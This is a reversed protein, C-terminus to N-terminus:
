NTPPMVEIAGQGELCACINRRVQNIYHNHVDVPRSYNVPTNTVNVGTQFRGTENAIVCAFDNEGCFSFVKHQDIESDVLDNKSGPSNFSYVHRLNEIYRINDNTVISQVATGGLSSGILDFSPSDLDSDDHKVRNQVLLTTVIKTAMDFACSEQNYSDDNWIAMLNALIDDIQTGRVLFAGKPTEGYYNPFVKQVDVHQVEIKERLEFEDIDKKGTFIAAAHVYIWNLARKSHEMVGRVFEVHLAIDPLGPAQKCTIYHRKLEGSDDTEGYIEPSYQELVGAWYAIDDEGPVSDYRHLSMLDIAEGKLACCPDHNFESPETFVYDALLASNYLRELLERNGNMEVFDECLVPESIAERPVILSFAVVATIAMSSRLTQM